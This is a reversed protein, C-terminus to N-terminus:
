RKSELFFNSGPGFVLIKVTLELLCVKLEKTKNTLYNVVGTEVEIQKNMKELKDGLTIVETQLFIAKDRTTHILAQSNL